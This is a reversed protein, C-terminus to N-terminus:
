GLMNKIEDVMFAQVRPHPRAVGSMFRSVTSEAVEFKIALDRVSVGNELAGTVIKSFQGKVASDFEDCLKILEQKDM